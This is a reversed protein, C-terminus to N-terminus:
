SELRTYVANRAITPGRFGLEYLAQRYRTARSSEGDTNSLNAHLDAIKVMTAIPNLKVRDIYSFYSEGKNRTLAIVAEVLDENIGLTVLEGATVHTDELVDHLFAVAVTGYTAKPNRLLNGVVEGIHKSFFDCDDGYTQGHHAIRAIAEAKSVQDRPIDHPGM